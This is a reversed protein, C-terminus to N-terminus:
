EVHSSAENMPTAPHTNFPYQVLACAGLSLRPHLLLSCLVADHHGSTCAERAFVASFVSTVTFYRGPLLMTIKIVMGFWAKEQVEQSTIKGPRIQDSIEM